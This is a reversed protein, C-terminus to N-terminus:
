VASPVAVSAAMRAASIAGKTLKTRSCSGDSRGGCATGRQDPYQAGGALAGRTPNEPGTALHVLFRSMPEARTPNRRSGLAHRRGSLMLGVQRM